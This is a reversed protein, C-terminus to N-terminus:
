TNGRIVELSKGHGLRSQKWPNQKSTDATQIYREAAGCKRIEAGSVGRLRVRLMIGLPDNKKDRKTSNLHHRQSDCHVMWSSRVTTTYSLGHTLSRVMLLSVLVCHVQYKSRTKM